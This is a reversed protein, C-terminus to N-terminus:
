ACCLLLYILKKNQDFSFHQPFLLKDVRKVPLNIESLTLKMVQRSM